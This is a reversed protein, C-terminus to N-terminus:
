YYKTGWTGGMNDIDFLKFKGFVLSSETIIDESEFSEIKLYPKEYKM